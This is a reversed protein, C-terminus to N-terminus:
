QGPAVDLAALGAAYGGPSPELLITDGPRSAAVAAALSAFQSRYWHPSSSGSGDEAVAPSNAAMQRPQPSALSSGPAAAAASEVASHTVYLWSRRDLALDRFRQLRPLPCPM